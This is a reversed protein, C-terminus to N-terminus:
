NVQRENLHDKLYNTLQEVTVIKECQEDPIVINFHNEAEMIIEVHDLSDAGLDRFTSCPTIENSAVGLVRQLIQNLEEGVNRNKM